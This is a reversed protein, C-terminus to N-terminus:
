HAKGNRSSGIDRGQAISSARRSVRYSTDGGDERAAQRGEKSPLDQDFWDLNNFSLM